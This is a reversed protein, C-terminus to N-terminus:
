QIAKRITSLFEIAADIREPTLRMGDAVFRPAHPHFDALYIAAYQAGNRLTHVAEAIGTCTDQRGRDLEAERQREPSVPTPTPRTYTKGDIGTVSRRPAAAPTPEVWEGPEDDVAPPDAPPTVVGGTAAHSPDDQAPTVDTVPSDLDRKVQMHSTGVVPAIARTSMGADTLERVVQRRVEIGLGSLAHGFRDSVYEGPSRYGLALDDRKAIAERIMPMVAAYNSAIAELRLNIREARREAAARDFEIVEGTTTDVLSM